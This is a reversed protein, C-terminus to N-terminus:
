LICRRYRQLPTLGRVLSYGRRNPSYFVDVTDRCQLLIGVWRIVWNAPTKSYMSQMKASPYYGVLSHDLRSPCYFVDVTDRCLLLIGVWRIVWNAPTKSYMSQMKASSYYGVLSHDLRSPCYFVDVADRYLPLVERFSRLPYSVLCDSPSAGTISNSQPIYLVGENGDSGPRSQGPTTAGSITRDIPWISSNSM